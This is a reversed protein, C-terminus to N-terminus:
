MDPYEEWVIHGDAPNDQQLRRYLTRIDDILIEKSGVQIITPPFGTLDGYSPSLLPTRIEKLYEPTCKSGPKYFLRLPCTPWELPIPFLYDFHKYKHLSEGELAMGPMPSLLCIAQPLLNQNNPQRSSIHRLALVLDICLHGGASDGVLIINQPSFGQALLFYYAILADHLQAPFPNLPALRYDIALCRLKCSESLKGIVQRHSGPSGMIYSGGHLCLAIKEEDFLPQLRLGEQGNFSTPLSSWAAILEGPLKRQPKQNIDHQILDQLPKEAVGLGKLLAPDIPHDNVNIDISRYMGVQSSLSSEPLPNTNFYNALDGFDIKDIEEDSSM